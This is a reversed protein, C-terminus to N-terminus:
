SGHFRVASVSEPLACLCLESEVVHFCPVGISKWMSVARDIGDFAAVLREKDERSMEEYWRRKLVDEPAYDCEERMQLMGGEIDRMM